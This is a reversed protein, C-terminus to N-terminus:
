ANGLVVAEADETPPAVSVVVPIDNKAFRTGGEEEIVITYRTKGAGETWYLNGRTRDWIPTGFPNGENGARLLRLQYANVGDALATLLRATPNPWQLAEKYLDTPVDPFRQSVLFTVAAKARYEVTRAKCGFVMGIRAKVAMTRGFKRMLAEALDGSVWWLYRQGAEMLAAFPLAEDLTDFCGMWHEIRPFQWRAEDRVSQAVVSLAKGLSDQVVLDNKPM